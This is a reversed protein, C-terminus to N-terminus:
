LDMAAFFGEQTATHLNGRRNNCDGIAVIRPALGKFKEVLSSRPVMGLALVVTDCPIETRKWNKDMIVAGSPSVSDLKVGTIIKVNLPALLEWLERVSVFPSNAIIEPAPLMDILTVKKGQQALNLATESGTLGAGAILVNNGTQAKGLDVDGAWVVNSGNAGPIDPMLPDSGAAVLIVDPKEAEIAAPAAETSLNVKIEPNQLTGREAWELYNKMDTKFPAAAAAILNGGLRPEKEFLVISHGREAARRAAEMGAPGGGIIVVKKKEAAPPFGVFEAERGNLPNVACRIPIYFHHTRNICTNCRVCPRVSQEEGREAKNVTDPDALLGRNMAIMDAKNEALTQEALDLNISGLATVPINLAKKYTEAYHINIGRPIYIPQIMRVSLGPEFLNGVSIHALDIKDQITKAFEIQDELRIGDSALEDASIRYEIALRNGVKDRISQLMENVFRVRNKFPGGYADTRLNKNKSFFQSILHGHAGHIMIMDLGACMCNYASKTFSAILAKIEQVTMTTPNRITVFDLYTLELSAKAGYRQITEALKNLGNISKESEPNLIHGVHMCIESSVPSDGVTVIGAGGRALAREWEILERSVDCDNTALFPMCPATEIRNKVTINGIKLPTFIHKYKSM